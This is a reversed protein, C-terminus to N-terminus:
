RSLASAMMTLEAAIQWAERTEVAHAGYMRATLRAVRIAKEATIPKINQVLTENQSPCAMMKQYDVVFETNNNKENGPLEESPSDDPAKSTDCKLLNDVEDQYTQFQEEIRIM